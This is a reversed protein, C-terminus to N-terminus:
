EPTDKLGTLMELCSRLIDTRVVDNASEMEAVLYFLISKRSVSGSNKLAFRIAENFVLKEEEYKECFEQLHYDLTLTNDSLMQQM